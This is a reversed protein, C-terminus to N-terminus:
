MKELIEVLNNYTNIILDASNNDKCKDNAGTFLIARMNAQKAGVIDSYETDGIHAAEEAGFGLKELTREFIQKHPKFAM